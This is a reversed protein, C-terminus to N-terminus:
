AVGGKQNPETRKVVGISIEYLLYMPL